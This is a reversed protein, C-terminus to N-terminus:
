ITVIRLLAECEFWVEMREKRCRSRGEVVECDLGDLVISAPEEMSDRFSILAVIDRNFVEVIEHMLERVTERVSTNSLRASTSEFQRTPHFAVEVVVVTLVLIFQDFFLM